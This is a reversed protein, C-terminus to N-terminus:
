QKEELQEAEEDRGMARLLAAYNRRTRQTNPHQPGLSQEYIALAHQYLSESQEYKKQHQYLLALWYLSQATDPHGYGLHKERISLARQHLPEAQNYKGQSYYLAALNNLSRATDPHDPGLQQECIALAHQYLPEAQEYKGQNSYLLALNNLSSATDPHDPGLQQERIQLARVHLPEAETYRARRYLYYGAKNLLLAAKALKLDGQEVLDACAQAQPLYREWQVWMAFEVTPCATSVALVTRKAWQKVEDESLADRLVAQVLRHISLTREAPDRRILSYAGLAAIAKNLVMPDRAAAQLLSGLHEAGATIIEEPIADPALFACLRLLDAAAPNKEEVCQFSLSWTTAVSDPHDDM